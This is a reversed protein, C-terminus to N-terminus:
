LGLVRAADHDATTFDGDDDGRLEFSVGWQQAQAIAAAVLGEIAAFVPATLTAGLETHTPVVGILVMRQLGGDLLRVGDLLEAVGVQHVSLRQEVAPAVDDGALRVLTGPPQPASVADLLIVDDAERLHPLLSLGLTGGDLVLAGRPTRYRRRIRTVAAVGAGDDSCLVNGLGLVLLGSM